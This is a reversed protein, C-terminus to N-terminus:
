TRSQTIIRNKKTLYALTEDLKVLNKMTNILVKICSTFIPCYLQVIKHLKSESGKGVKMDNAKQASNM